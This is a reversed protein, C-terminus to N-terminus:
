PIGFKYNNLYTGNVIDGFQDSSLSAMIVFEPPSAWWLGAHLCLMQLAGYHKSYFLFKNPANVNNKTKKLVRYQFVVSM